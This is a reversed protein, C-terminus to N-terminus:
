ATAAERTRLMTLGLWTAWVPWGLTQGLVGLGFGILAPIGPMEAQLDSAQPAGAFFYTVPLLVMGVGSAIGLWVLGAPLTRTSRGAICVLLLWAGVVGFPLTILQDSVPSATIIRSVYLTQIIAMTLLGVIGIVLALLSMASAKTKTSRYFALAGPLLLLAVFIFSADNLTGFTQPRDTLQGQELMAPVEVTYFLLLFIFGVLGIVGSLVTCWAVYPAVSISKM